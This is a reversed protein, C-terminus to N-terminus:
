QLLIAAEPFEMLKRYIIDAVMRNGAVSFHGDGMDLRYLARISHPALKRIEEIVDVLLYGQRDAEERVFARWTETESGARPVYDSFIPLHVLVTMRHDAQDSQNLEKFIQSVVARTQREAADKEPSLRSAVRRVLDVSNLKMLSNLATALKPLYYARRPVPNNEQVLSGDRISLRPKAYGLFSDSEMRRFDTTIFAFLHIDHELTGENRKYWLYAQDVGYGGQGLNVAELRDDMANLLQCWPQDDDVGYGLTFSDGSCLIRTKGPPVAFGFDQRNRFRQSNTTLHVGLGYMDEVHHNPLNIWGIEPDYETHAREAIRQNGFFMAHGVIVYSSFGEFLLLLLVLVVANIAVVKM